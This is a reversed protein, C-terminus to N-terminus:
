IAQRYFLTQINQLLSFLIQAAFQLGWFGRKGGRRLLPNFYNPMILTQQQMQGM